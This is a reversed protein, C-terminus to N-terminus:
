RQGRAAEGQGGQGGQGGGPGGRVAVPAGERLRDAGDVVVLEGEALGKGVLARGGSTEGLEIRRTEATNDPKVLYIFAGQPGRQVAAAPVVVADKLVDVQL